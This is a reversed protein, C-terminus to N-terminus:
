VFPGDFKPLAFIYLKMKRHLFYKRLAQIKKLLGCESMKKLAFRM